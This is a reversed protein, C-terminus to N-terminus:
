PKIVVIKKSYTALNTNLKVLYVGNSLGAINFNYRNQSINSNKVELMKRGGADFISLSFNSHLYNGFDIWLQSTANNIYIKVDDWVRIFDTKSISLTTDANSAKLSVDYYGIGSFLINEPNEDTSTAPIGNEFTWLYQYPGGFSKNLFNVAEGNKIFTSSATFDLKKYSISKLQLVNSGSPDLWEKLHFAPTTGNKDWHWSFKGYYDIGTLNSCLSQGGTLTGIIKGSVNFIPSGSSGGETVGYGNTTANWSVVWHSMATDFAGTTLSTTYTSIKKIDGAPHHISVGSISSDGSRDWGLFCPNYADPVNNNLLVLFFDSGTTGSNGGNAIKVAGTM